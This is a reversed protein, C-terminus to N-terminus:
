WKLRIGLLVSPDGNVLDKFELVPGKSKRRTLYLQADGDVALGAAVGMLRIGTEPVGASRLADMSYSKVEDRLRHQNHRYASRYEEPSMQATVTHWQDDACAARIIVLLLGPVSIAALRSLPNPM